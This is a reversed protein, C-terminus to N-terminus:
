MQMEIERSNDLKEIEPVLAPEQLLIDDLQRVEGAKVESFVEQAWGRERAIAELAGIREETAVELRERLGDRDDTVLEARHRTRSIEM